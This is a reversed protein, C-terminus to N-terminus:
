LLGKEGSDDAGKNDDKVKRLAKLPAQAALLPDGSPFARLPVYKLCSLDFVKSTSTSSSSSAPDEVHYQHSSGWGVVWVLDGVRIGGNGDGDEDENEDNTKLGCFLEKSLARKRKM